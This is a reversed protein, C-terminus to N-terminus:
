SAVTAEATSGVRGRKARDALWSDIEEENWVNRGGDSLKFPKPFRGAKWQRRVHERSWTIGKSALDAQSLLRM